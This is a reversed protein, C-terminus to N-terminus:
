KMVWYDVGDVTTKQALTFGYGILFKPLDWQLYQALENVKCWHTGDEAIGCVEGTSGVTGSPIFRLNYGDNTSNLYANTFNEKNLMAIYPFWTHDGVQMCLIVSKEPITVNAAKENDIVTKYETETKPQATQSSQLGGSNGSNSNANGNGNGNSGATGTSKRKSPLYVIKKGCNATLDNITVQMNAITADKGKIVKNLDAIEQDKASNDATMTTLATISTESSKPWWDKPWWIAYGILLLIIIVIVGIFYYYWNDKNM